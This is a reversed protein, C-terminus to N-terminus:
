FFATQEIGERLAKPLKVKPRGERVAQGHHAELRACCHGFYAAEREIGISCAGEELAAQLTTGSGAFPELVTGGPPTVLRVLWRMLAVPKVTPHDSGARDVKDAKPCYFFRSASGFADAPFGALVEPSGDQVINAPFRGEAPRAESPKALRCNEGTWTGGGAAGGGWGTAKEAEIRCADINLGGTRWELVNRAVTGVLPKRALAIPEWAPKLATGWGQWEQAEPSAPLYLRAAEDVADPDGMWPRQWGENGEGARMAGREIWGAHAASKPEGFTGEVGLAADIGRAVSHSKAMGTGYVWALQDRIEFGADEIAVALRHYTRTGSFAVCHGGPRLVRLVETWFTAAFATEGTDWAQGMFGASARAFAGDRGHQAPAANAGGFRKVISVLAYPPDTVVADVSNDAIGALVNRSDGHHMVARGGHFTRLTM